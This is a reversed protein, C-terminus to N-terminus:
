LMTQCRFYSSPFEGNYTPNDTLCAVREMLSLCLSVLLLYLVHFNKRISINHSITEEVFATKFIFYTDNAVIQTDHCTCPKKEFCTLCLNHMDHCTCTKKARFVDPVFQTGHCTCPKQEFCTLCLNHTGHCTCACITHAM